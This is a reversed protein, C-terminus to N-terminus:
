RNIPHNKIIGNRVILPPNPKRTFDSYDHSRLKPLTVKVATRFLSDLDNRTSTIIKGTMGPLYCGAYISNAKNIKDMAVDFNGLSLEKLGEVVTKHFELADLYVNDHNFKIGDDGTILPNFGLERILFSNLPRLLTEELRRRNTRTIAVDWTSRCIRDWTIFLDLPSLLSCFINKLMEDPWETAVEKGKISINFRGLTQIKLSTDSHKM